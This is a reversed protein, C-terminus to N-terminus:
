LSNNAIVFALIVLSEIFAMGILFPVFLKGSASPNRGISDLVSAVAKGQGFAGGLAALSIAIGAGLTALEGERGDAAFATDAFLITVLSLLAFKIVNKM